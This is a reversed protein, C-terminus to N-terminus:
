MFKQNVFTEVSEPTDYGLLKVVFRGDPGVGLKEVKLLTGNELYFEDTTRLIDESGYLNFYMEGKLGFVKGFRGVCIRDKPM